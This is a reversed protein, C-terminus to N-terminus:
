IRGGAECRTAAALRSEVVVDRYSGGAEIRSPLGLRVDDPTPMRDSGETMTLTEPPVHARMERARLCVMVEFDAENV